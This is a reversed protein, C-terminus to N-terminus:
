LYTSVNQLFHVRGCFEKEGGIIVAQVGIERLREILQVGNMLPMSYDVLILKYLICADAKRGGDPLHLKQLADEGNKATHIGEENIGMKTLCKLMLKRTPPSDDVVLISLSSLICLAANDAGHGCEQSLTMTPFVAEENKVLKISGVDSSIGGSTFFLDSEFFNSPSGNDSGISASREDLIITAKRDSGVGLVLTCFFTSGKGEGDSLFDITGGMLEIMRKSINLGLGTSHRYTQNKPVQKFASFILHHHELPIGEGEDTVSFKIEVHKPNQRVVSADLHVMSGRQSFKIANSLFNSLCGNLRFVDGIVVAPIEDAISLKLRVGTTKLQATFGRNLQRFLKTVSFKDKKLEVQDADLKEIDLVTDLLHMMTDASAGMESVLQAIEAIQTSEDIEDDMAGSKEGYTHTAADKPINHNTPTSAKKLADEIIGMGSILDLGM